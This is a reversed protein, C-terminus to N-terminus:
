MIFSWNNVFEQLEATPKDKLFWYYDNSMEENNAFKVIKNILAEKVEDIDDKLFDFM